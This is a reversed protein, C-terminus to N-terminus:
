KWSTYREWHEIADEVNDDDADDIEYPIPCDWYRGPVEVSLLKKRSTEQTGLVEEAQGVM